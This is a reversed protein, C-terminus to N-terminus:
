YAVAVSETEFLFREVNANVKKTVDDMTSSRLFAKMAEAFAKSDGIKVDPIAAIRSGKWILPPPDGVHFITRDFFMADMKCDDFYERSLKYNRHLKVDPKDDYLPQEGYAFILCKGYPIRGIDEQAMLAQADRQYSTNVKKQDISNSSGVSTANGLKKALYENNSNEDGGLFVLFPCNADIVEYDDPYMGKLQTISQCIVTASIEYGRMTALKEKFEPIEGINPFEDILFRFHTPLAPVRGSVIKANKLDKLYKEALEKTPRMTILKGDEDVIKFLANDFVVKKKKDYGTEIGSEHGAVSLEERVVKANKIKAVAEDITPVEQKSFWKVLEGDPLKLSKSGEVCKEGFQYLTDFLQTYLFALLFNYTRDTTPMILFLATKQTPFSDLDMTDTSTLTRLQGINFPDLRVATTMLITTSTKEPAIKFNEWERLCYPKEIEEQTCDQLKAEYARLNEFIASLESANATNNKGDGLMVGEALSIGCTPTWKRNAMRTLECLNPFCAEFCTGGTVEEIQAYPIDSGKPKSVLFGICACLFASMSDDWFPDKNGGGKGGTSDTNKMFAQVIKKIDSERKCYKLPNYTNCNGLNMIDFVKINYGSRRLLEGCSELIEGKPDTIAFSTNMQLLNPKLWFRTKGSGSVGIVLTNLAHFHKKTNLSVYFNKSMIVNNKANEADQKKMWPFFGKTEIVEAYKRTLIRASEWFSRGKLTDLNNHVRLKAYTYGLFVFLDLLLTVGVASWISYGKVTTFYFPNSSIIGPLASFVEAVTDRPNMASYASYNLMLLLCAITLLVGELIYTEKVRQRKKAINEEPKFENPNAKKGM